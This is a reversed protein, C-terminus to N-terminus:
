GFAANYAVGEAEEARLEEQPEAMGFFEELSADPERGARARSAESAGPESRERRSSPPESAEGRERGARKM